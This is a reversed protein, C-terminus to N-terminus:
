NIKYMFGNHTNIFKKNKYKFRLLYKYLIKSMVSQICFYDFKNDCNDIIYHLIERCLGKQRYEPLIYIGHLLIIEPNEKCFILEGIDCNFEAKGNDFTSYNSIYNDIIEKFKEMLYM